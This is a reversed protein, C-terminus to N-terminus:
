EDLDTALESGSRHLERRLRGVDHEDFQQQARRVARRGSDVANRAVSPDSHTTLSALACLLAVQVEVMDAGDRIMPDMSSEFMEDVDIELVHLRAHKVEDDDSSETSYSELIRAMRGIVDIATGPDNIGPSMAKSGVESLVVLGFTPDQDFTRLDGVVVNELVCDEVADHRTSLTCLPEDTYVFSGIPVHLYVDVDNDSAVLGIADQYIMQLYGTTTSRVVFGDSPVDSASLRRGGLFPTSTRVDLAQTTRDEIRRATDILSGVRQLHLIWRVISVVILILILITFFFLVVQPDDDDDEGVFLSTRLLVIAALAFIYSGVFTALTNQTTRDELMLRHVRPTWQSSASRYVSVMVSLSFTVVALMSSAIITLLDNLSDTGLTDSIREPLYPRTIRAVAIALLSLVSIVAIRIWLRDLADRSKRRLTSFM